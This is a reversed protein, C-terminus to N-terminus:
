ESPRIVAWLACASGGEARARLNLFEDSGSRCVRLTDGPGLEDHQHADPELVVLNGSVCHVFHEQGAIPLQMEEQPQFYAPYCGAKAAVRRTFLNFDECKGNVKLESPLDGSFHFPVLPRVQKDKKGLLFFRGGEGSLLVSTRDYGPYLSFSSAGELEARTVKWDFETEREQAILRTVGGGNKWPSPTLDEWRIM